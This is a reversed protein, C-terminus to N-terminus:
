RRNSNCSSNGALKTRRWSSVWQNISNSRMVDIDEGWTEIDITGRGLAACALSLLQGKRDASRYEEVVGPGDILRRDRWMTCVGVLRHGSRIGLTERNASNPDNIPDYAHHGWVGVFAENMLRRRVAEEVRDNIAEHADISGVFELRLRAFGQRQTFGSAGYEGGHIWVLRANNNLATDVLVDLTTDLEQHVVELLKRGDPAKSFTVHM